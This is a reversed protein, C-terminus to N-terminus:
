NDKFISIVFKEVTNGAVYKDGRLKITNENMMERALEKVNGNPISVGLRYKRILKGLLGKKPGIVPKHYQAGYGIVGSSQITNYYPILIKDCSYCLDALFEFRVFDNKVIIQVKSSLQQVKELFDAEIDNQIKGAFVFTMKDLEEQPILHIAQLIDMTGKRATLAGFHIFLKKGASIGLERRIDKATYDLKVYPDVIFEFKDTKFMKNLCAAASSDNLVLAKEVCNCKAVLYFKFWNLFKEICGLKQWEYLYIRYIIGRLKVKSSGMIAIYPLYQMLMTLICEQPQFKRIYSRLLVSARYNSLYLNTFRKIETIEDKSIFEFYLHKAEPWEFQDKLNKFTYPVVFIYKQNTLELAELYYHHLYELHHGALDIDFIM